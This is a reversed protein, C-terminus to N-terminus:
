ISQVIENSYHSNVRFSLGKEKTSEKMPILWYLINYGFVEYLNNIKGIDFPSKIDEFCDEKRIMKDISWYNIKSVRYTKKLRYYEFSTFNSFILNIHFLLLMLVSLGLIFTAFLVLQMLTTLALNIFNYIFMFCIVNGYLLLLLYFKYNDITICKDLWICHHDMKLYCQNCFKCHHCRDPRIKNCTTCFRLKDNNRQNICVYDSCSVSITNLSNEKNNDKIYVKNEKNQKLLEEVEQLPLNWPFEDPITSLKTFLTRYLSIFFMLNYLIFFAFQDAINFLPKNSIHFLPLYYEYLTYIFYCSSILVIGIIYIKKEIFTFKNKNNNM